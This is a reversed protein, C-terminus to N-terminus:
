VISLSLLVTLVLLTVGLMKLGSLLISSKSIRGLIAGLFFVSFSIAIISGYFALDKGVIGLFALMYPILTLATYGAPAAGGILGALLPAKFVKEWHVTDKLNRLMSSQLDKFEKLREAREVMINGTSQSVALAIAIGLGSFLILSPDDKGAVRAGLILGLISLNGDFANTVFWRRAVSLIDSLALNRKIKGLVM